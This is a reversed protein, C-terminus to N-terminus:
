EKSFEKTNTKKIGQGNARNKCTTEMNAPVEFYKCFNYTM